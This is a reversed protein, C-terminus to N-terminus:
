RLVHRYQEEFFCLSFFDYKETFQYTYRQPRIFIYAVDKNCLHGPGGWSITMTNHHKITGATILAWKNALLDFTNEQLEQPKIQKFM